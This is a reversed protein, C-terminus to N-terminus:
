LSVAIHDLWSPESRRHAKRSDTYELTTSSAVRRRRRSMVGHAVATRPTTAVNKRESM